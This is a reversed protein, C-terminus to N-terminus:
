AQGYNSAKEEPPSNDTEEHDIQLSGYRETMWISLSGYREETRHGCVRTGNVSGAM